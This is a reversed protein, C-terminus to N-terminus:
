LNRFGNCSYYSVKCISNSPHANGMAFSEGVVELMEKDNMGDGFAIAQEKKIKLVQLVKKVAEGKNV